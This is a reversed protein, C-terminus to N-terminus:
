LCFHEFCRFHVFTMITLPWYLHDCYSEIVEYLRMIHLSTIISINPLVQYPVSCNSNMVQFRVCSYAPFTQKKWSTTKSSTSLLKHPWTLISITCWADWMGVGYFCSIGRGSTISPKQAFHSYMNHKPGITIKQSIASIEPLSVQKSRFLM